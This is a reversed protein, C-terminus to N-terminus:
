RKRRFIKTFYRCVKAFTPRAEGWFRPPAMPKQPKFMQSYVTEHTMLSHGEEDTKSHELLKQDYAQIDDLVLQEDFISAAHPFHDAALDDRVRQICTLWSVPAVGMIEQWKHFRWFRYAPAPYSPEKAKSRGQVLEAGRDKADLVFFLLAVAYAHVLQAHEPCTVCFGYRGLMLPGNSFSHAQSLNKWKAVIITSATDDAQAELLQHTLLSISVPKGGDESRETPVGYKSLFELHGRTAHGFEHLLTFEIAKSFIEYALLRRWNETPLLDRFASVKMAQLLPAQSDLVDIAGDGFKSQYPNPFESSTKSGPQSLTIAGLFLQVILGVGIEISYEREDHEAFVKAFSKDSVQFKLSANFDGGVGRCMQKLRASLVDITPDLFSSPHLLRSKNPPQQRIENEALFARIHWTNALELLKEKVDEGSESPPKAGDLTVMLAILDALRKKDPSAKTLM